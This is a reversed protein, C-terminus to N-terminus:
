LSRDLFIIVPILLSAVQSVSVCKLLKNTAGNVVDMLVTSAIESKQISALLDQVVPEETAYLLVDFNDQIVDRLIESNDIFESQFNNLSYSLIWSSFYEIFIRM